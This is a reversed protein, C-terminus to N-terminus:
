DVLLRHTSRNTTLRHDAHRAFPGSFTPVVAEEMGRLRDDHPPSVKRPFPAPPTRENICLTSSDSTEVTIPVTGTAPQLTRNGVKARVTAEAPQAQAGFETSLPLGVFYRAIRYAAGAFYSLPHRGRVLEARHLADVFDDRGVFSPMIQFCPAISAVSHSDAGVFHAAGIENAFHVARRDARASLNQANCVEVADVLDAIGWVAEMLGCGMVRVFPHPIFVLGGQERIAMATDGVSLGPPVHRELFLGILHGDRTSIEEGVIVRVNTTDRLRLAGEVTDHDTVAVCGFHHREVFDTLATLSINSDFSFDTHVHLLTKISDM